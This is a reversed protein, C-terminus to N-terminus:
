SSVNDTHIGLISAIQGIILGKKSLENIKYWMNTIKVQYLKLM